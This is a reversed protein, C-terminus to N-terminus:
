EKLEDDYVPMREFYPVENLGVRYDELLKPGLVINNKLKDSWVGKPVYINRQTVGECLVPAVLLSDGVLFEDNVHLAHLDLNSPDVWWVPRLVPLGNEADQKLEPSKIAKLVLDTHLRSLNQALGITEEDYIWPPVSFKYAPFFAAMQMWRTFLDRSPQSSLFSQRGEPVSFGDALVYPYGLLGLTLAKEITNVLCSRGDRVQIDTRVALLAPLTQSGATHEVVLRSTFTAMMETLQRRLKHLTISGDSFTPKYPLWGENGYSVRLARADAERFLTTMLSHFWARSSTRSVDLMAVAAGNQWHTLGPVHGGADRVFLQKDVGSHFNDLSRYDFYPSVELALDCTGHVSDTMNTLNSFRAPDFTLDGHSRQWDGDLVLLSCNLKHMKLRSIIAKVEEQDYDTKRTIGSVSWQPASFMDLSPVGQDKMGRLMSKMVLHTTLPDPGNCLTYNMIPLANRGTQGYLPGTYNSVVCMYNPKTTNWRLTLPNDANLLLGVGSSSLWYLDVVSSFIGGNGLQYPTPIYDFTGRIPFTETSQNSPGYWVANGVDFCDYPVRPPRLTQWSVNYCQASGGSDEDKAVFYDVRLVANNKWLCEKSNPNGRTLIPCHLPLQWQPLNQGLLVSVEDQGDSLTLIRRRPDVFIKQNNLDEERTKDRYYWGLSVFLLTILFILGVFIHLRYKTVIEKNSMHNHAKRLQGMEAALRKQTRKLAHTNVKDSFLAISDRRVHAAVTRSLSADSANSAISAQSFRRARKYRENLRLDPASQVSSLGNAKRPNSGNSSNIIPHQRDDDDDSGNTATPDHEDNAFGQNTFDFSIRKGGSESASLRYRRAGALPPGAGNPSTTSPSHRYQPPFVGYMRKNAPINGLYNEQFDEDSMTLGPGQLIEEVEPDVDGSPTRNRTPYVFVSDSESVVEPITEIPTGPGLLERSSRRATQNLDQLELSERGVSNRPIGGSPKRVRPSIDLAEDSYDQPDMPERESDNKLIGGSPKRTRHSIDLAEDSYAQPDKPERESGNKLIEGSPKRAHPSIDLVVDNNYGYGRGGNNVDAAARKPPLRPRPPPPRDYAPDSDQESDVSNERSFKRPRPIPGTSLRHCQDQSNRTRQPPCPPTGAVPAQRGEDEGDERVANNIEVVVDESRRTLPNEAETQSSFSGSISGQVDSGTRRRRNKWNRSAWTSTESNERREEDDEDEVSASRGNKVGGLGVAAAAAAGSASGAVRGAVNPSTNTTKPVMDPGSDSQPYNSPPTQADNNDHHLHSPSPNDQDVTNDDDDEPSDIYFQLKREKTMSEISRLIGLVFDKM